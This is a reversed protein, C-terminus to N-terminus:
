HFFRESIETHQADDLQMAMSFLWEAFFPRM